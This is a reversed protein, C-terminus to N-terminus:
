IEMTPLQVTVKTGKDKESEISINGGHMEIIDKVITLGLGFGSITHIKKEIRYFKDFIYPVESEKIGKGTDEINIEFNWSSDRLVLGQSSITIKGGKENFKIANDIIHSFAYKIALEDGSVQIPDPPFDIEMTIDNEECKQKFSEGIEKVLKLILIPERKLGINWKSVEDFDLLANLIKAFKSGENRIINLFNDTTPPLNDNKKLETELIDLSGLIAFLPTRLEHAVNTIFEDEKSHILDWEAPNTFYLVALNIDNFSIPSIGFAVTIEKNDKRLLHLPSQFYNKMPFTSLSEELIPEEGLKDNSNIIHSGEKGLTEEREYGLTKLAFNNAFIIKMDNNILFFGIPISEAVSSFLLEDKLKQEGKKSKEDKEKQTLHSLFMFFGLIKSINFLKESQTSNFPNNEKRRNIQIVGYINDKYIVPSAVITQPPPDFINNKLDFRLDKQAEPLFAPKKSQLLWGTLGTQSSVKRGEILSSTGIAIKCLLSDERKLFIAGEDGNFESIVKKLWKALIKNNITDEGLLQNFYDIYSKDLYLTANSNSQNKNLKEVM